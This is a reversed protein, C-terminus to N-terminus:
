AARYSDDFIMTILLIILPVSPLGFASGLLGVAIDGGCLEVGDRVGQTVADHVRQMGMGGEDNYIYAPHYRARSHRRSPTQVM